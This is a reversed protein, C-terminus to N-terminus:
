DVPTSALFALEADLLQAEVEAIVARWDYGIGKGPYEGMVSTDSTLVVTKTTPPVAPTSRTNM